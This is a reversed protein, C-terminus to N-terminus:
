AGPPVADTLKLGVERENPEKLTPAVLPVNIAVSLLPVLEAIVMLLTETVPVFEPSKTMELLVHPLLRAAEALQLTESEKLGLALPVRVAVSVAESVALL